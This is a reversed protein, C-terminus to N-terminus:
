GGGAFSIQGQHTPLEASRVTLLIAPDAEGTLAVLVAAERYGPFVPLTQRQRDRVWAQWPGPALPQKM